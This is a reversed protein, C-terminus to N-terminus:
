NKEPVNLNMMTVGVAKDEINKKYAPNSIINQLFYPRMQTNPRIIMSGTGCLLGEQHVVACRGMEGRRGLVIDDIKLQYASLEDYKKDSVTLKEDICIQGEIIHSPNVLAHGGTIYDEQHLLSGFPGIRIEAIDGLTVMPWNKENSVPDGFMEVFRSKVLLDLKDLQARRKAILDSVKDLLAAIRRQEELSPLPITCEKVIASTVAPYSAGTAQSVMKEIFAPSQCFYFVYKNDANPLCRLVCYGTSAVLTNDSNETVLAVANLNPRVTSVLIDGPFVLQKARSPADVISMSQIQTIEKRQNDISSIDIYDIDGKYTAKITDVKKECVDGLRAM